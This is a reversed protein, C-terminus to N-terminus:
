EEENAIEKNTELYTFYKPKYNGSEMIGIDIAIDYENGTELQKMYKNETSYTKVLIENDSRTTYYETKIM